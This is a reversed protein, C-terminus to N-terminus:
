LDKLKEFSSKSAAKKLEELQQKSLQKKEKVKLIVKADERSTAM